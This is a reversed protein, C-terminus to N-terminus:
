HQKKVSRKRRGEENIIEEVVNSIIQKCVTWIGNDLEVAYENIGIQSKLNNMYRTAGEPDTLKM